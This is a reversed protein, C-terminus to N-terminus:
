QIPVTLVGSVQAIGVLLDKEKLTLTPSPSITSSSYWSTLAVRLCAKHSRLQADRCSIACWMAFVAQNSISKAKSAVQVVEVRPKCTLESAVYMAMGIWHTVAGAICQQLKAHKDTSLRGRRIAACDHILVCSKCVITIVTSGIEDHM